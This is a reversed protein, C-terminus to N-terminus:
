FSQLFHKPSLIFVPTKFKNLQSVYAKNSKNQLYEPRGVILELKNSCVSYSIHTQHLAIWLKLFDLFKLMEM